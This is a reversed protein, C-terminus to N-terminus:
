RKRIKSYKTYVQYRYEYAGEEGTGLAPHRSQSTGPAAKLPGLRTKGQRHQWWFWWRQHSAQVSICMGRTGILLREAGEIRSETTPVWGRCGTCPKLITANLGAKRRFAATGYGVVITREPACQVGGTGHKSVCFRRDDDVSRPMPWWSDAPLCCCSDDNRVVLLPQAPELLQPHRVIKDHVLFTIM